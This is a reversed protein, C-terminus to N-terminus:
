EDPAGDCRFFRQEGYEYFPVLKAVMRSMRAHGRLSPHKAKSLQLRTSAKKLSAGVGVAGLAYLVLTM